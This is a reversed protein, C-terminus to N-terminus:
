SRPRVVSEYVATVRGAVAELSLRAVRARGGTRPLELRLTEALRRAIGAPDRPVIACGPLDEILPRVDGVDTSLIPRECALSEKIVNPSGEWYSTLLIVDAANMLLPVRDHSVDEFTLLEAPLETKLIEVARRATAYDKQGRRPSAPFLVYRASPDLGLRRRADHRDVPQFAELDVGNPIVHLNRVGRLHRGMEESKVIVADAARAALRHVHYWFHAAPRPRGAFDCDKLLEEGMYSIVLPIGARALSSIGCYGHHAHVVDFRQRRCLERIRPIAQLYKVRKTGVIEYLEVQVGARRLSEMQTKVFTLTGPQAESPLRASVFLVRLPREPAASVTRDGGATMRARMCRDRNWERGGRDLPEASFPRTEGCM